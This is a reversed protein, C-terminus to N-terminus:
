SCCWACGRDTLSLRVAGAVTAPVARAGTALAARVSGERPPRAETMLRLVAAVLVLDLVASVVFPVALSGGGVLAPLAGGAVAGLALGGGDAASARSLGPAVDADPQVEHVADVYWAEMPGSDLARGVGMVVATVLFAALDHALCFGVCSAVHLSAGAVVVARRGVVDALGGTPLELALVVAGYVSFVLGTDALSLGREQMLLVMVPVTLGVPLWRLATLVVFRRTLQRATVAGTGPECRGSRCRSCTSTSGCSRRTRPRGGTPASRRGGTSSRESSTSCPAPRTPTLRLAWDSLDSAGDWERGLADRQALWAQLATGRQAVLMRTLEDVVESGDDAFDEPDWSTMRHLAQWWRERGTGRGEVEGVFGYRALERLHYSTTGSSEGLRRGLLTATSPGDTRLLGLVRLRVPHALARLAQPDRVHLVDDRPQDV